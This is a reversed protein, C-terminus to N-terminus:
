TAELDSGFAEETQGLDLTATILFTQSADEQGEIAAPVGRNLRCSARLGIDRGKYSRRMSRIRSSQLQAM